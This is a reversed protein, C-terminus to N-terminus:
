QAVERGVLVLPVRWTRKVLEELTQMSRIHKTDKTWISAVMWTEVQILPDIKM